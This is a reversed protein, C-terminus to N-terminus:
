KFDLSRLIIISLITGMGHWLLFGAIWLYIFVENWFYVGLLFIPTFVGLLFLIHVLPKVIPSKANFRIYVSSLILLSFLTMFLDIHVQLLISDILIPEEFSEENGLLTTKISSIDTGIVYAHLVTDLILYIFIVSIVSAILYAYLRSYNLDKTVLFKM